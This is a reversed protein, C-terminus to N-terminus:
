RPTFLSVLSAVNEETLLLRFYCITCFLCKREVKREEDTIQGGRIKVRGDAITGKQSKMDMRAWFVLENMQKLIHWM